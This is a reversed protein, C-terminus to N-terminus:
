SFGDATLSSAASNANDLRGSTASAEARARRWAAGRGHRLLCARGEDGIPSVSSTNRPDTRFTITGELHISRRTSGPELPANM